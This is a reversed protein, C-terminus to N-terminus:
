WGTQHRAELAAALEETLRRSTLAALAVQAPEVNRAWADLEAAIEDGMAAIEACRSLYRTSSGVRTLHATLAQASELLHSTPAALRACMEASGMIMGTTPLDTSRSQRPVLTPRTRPSIERLDAMLLGVVDLHRPSLSRLPWDTVGFPVVPLDLESWARIQRRLWGAYSARSETATSGSLHAVIREHAGASAEGLAASLGIRNIKALLDPATTLPSELTVADGTPM